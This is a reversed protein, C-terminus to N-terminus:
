LPVLFNDPSPFTRVIESVYYTTEPLTAAIFGLFAARTVDKVGYNFGAFFSAAVGIADNIMYEGGTAIYNEKMWDLVNVSDGNVINELM